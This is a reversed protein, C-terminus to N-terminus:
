SFIEEESISKYQDWPQGGEPQDPQGAAEQDENEGQQDAEGNREKKPLCSEGDARNTLWKPLVEPKMLYFVAADADGLETCQYVSINLGSDNSLFLAEIVDLYRKTEINDYDRVRRPSKSADYQHVICVTSQRMRERPNERLFEILAHRMPVLLFDQEYSRNRKPLIAPLSIRLWDRYERIEINLAESAEGYFQLIKSRDTRAALNRLQVTDVEAQRVLKYLEERPNYREIAELTGAVRDLDNSLSGFNAATQRMTEIDSFSISM